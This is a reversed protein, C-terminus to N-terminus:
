NTIDLHSYVKYMKLITLDSLRKKIDNKDWNQQNGAQVSM